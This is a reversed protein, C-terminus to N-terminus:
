DNEANNDDEWEEATCCAYEIYVGNEVKDLLVVLRKYDQICENEIGDAIRGLEETEGDWGSRQIINEIVGLLLTKERLSVGERDGGEEGVELITKQKLREIAHTLFARKMMVGLDNRDKKM